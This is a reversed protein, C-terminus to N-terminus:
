MGDADAIAEVPDKQNKLSKNVLYVGILTSCTGIINNLTIKEDLLLSGVWIAVIPNIYAYLSAIAPKLHKMSYIFSVFALVSGGMVMYALIGWTKAPIEHIPVYKGSFLTILGMTFASILMQWGISYYANMNIKNRSMIISGVSWTIMAFLSLGVGLLYHTGHMQLSDKYFIFLIGLLGLFLGLLTQPTIKIAKFYYREILVVSLPYLAAILAALGSTIFQLGYTAIGNSSVFMLFAMPLLWAFQKLTPIKEGMLLFFIVYISGGMFQRISALEFAPLHAIGMKSAVWTTGWVVSTITLALYAKKNNAVPILTQFTEISDNGDGLWPGSL